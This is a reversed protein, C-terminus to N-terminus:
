PNPQAQPKPKQPNRAVVIPFDIPHYKLWLKHNSENTTREHPIDVSRAPQAHRDILLSASLLLPIM